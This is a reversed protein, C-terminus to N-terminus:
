NTKPVIIKLKKRQKKDEEYYYIDTRKGDTRLVSTRIRNVVKESFSKSESESEDSSKSERDIEDLVIENNDIYSATRLPIKNTVYDPDLVAEVREFKHNNSDVKLEYINYYRYARNFRSNFEKLKRADIEDGEKVFPAAEREAVIDWCNRELLLVKIDSCWAAYNTSDLPKILFKMSEM